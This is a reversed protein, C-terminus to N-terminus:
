TCVWMRLRAELVRDSPLSFRPLQLHQSDSSGFMLGSIYLVRFPVHHDGFSLYVSVRRRQCAVARMEIMIM